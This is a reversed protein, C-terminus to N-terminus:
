KLGLLTRANARFSERSGEVHQHIYSSVLKGEPGECTEAIDEWTLVVLPYDLKANSLKAWNSGPRNVARKVGDLSSQTVLLVHIFPSVRDDALLSNFRRSVAMIDDEFDWDSLFKVEVTVASKNTIDAILIDALEGRDKGEELLYGHFDFTVHTSTPVLQFNADVGDDFALVSCTRLLDSFAQLRSEYGPVLENFYYGAFVKSYFNREKESELMNKSQFLM